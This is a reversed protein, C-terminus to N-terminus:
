LPVPGDPVTVSWAGLDPTVAGAPECTAIVTERPGAGEALGVAVATGLTVPWLWDCAVAASWAAPNATTTSWSGLVVTGAPVTESWVGCLPTSAWGPVVTVITTELPAVM